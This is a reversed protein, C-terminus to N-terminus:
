NRKGDVAVSNRAMRFGNGFLGGAQENWAAESQRRWLTPDTDIRQEPRVVIGNDPEEITPRVSWRQQDAGVTKRQDKVALQSGPVDADRKPCSCAFAPSVV